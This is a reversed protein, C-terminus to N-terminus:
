HVDEPPSEIWDVVQSWESFYRSRKEVSWSRFREWVDDPMLAFFAEVKDDDAEEVYMVVDPEEGPESYWDTM